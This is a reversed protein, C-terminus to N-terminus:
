PNRPKQRRWGRGRFAKVSGAVVGAPIVVLWVTLVVAIIALIILFLETM